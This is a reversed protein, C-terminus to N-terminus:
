ALGEGRLLELAGAVAAVTEEVDAETHAATTMGGLGPLDVGHLLMGQRFAQRLRRDVPADLRQLDGGYPIFADDQPPPGQYDPLLCFGSFEGYAVWSLGREAFLANLGQRLQQAAANARRGPEGIAVRQLTAV